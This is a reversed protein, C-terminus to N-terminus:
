CPVNGLATKVLRRDKDYWSAYDSGKLFEDHADTMLRKLDAQLREKVRGASAESALNKMQYPDALNDYLEEQGTLWRWYTHQKTHVGRWEPWNTGTQFYDWHSTYNAILVVERSSAGTGLADASLDTGDTMASCRIGALACLTPMHDIPTYLTDCVRGKPIMGKWRMVLPIKMAEAYPVMKNMRGHSGLMDGHDATFILITDESLGSSDLYDILRGLQDDFNMAMALYIRLQKLNMPDKGKPVNPSRYLNNEPPIKDIYGAPLSKEDWNPHPPHPAVCLLFPKDSGKHKEMYAIAQDINTDTEYKDSYVKKPKDEYWWYGNFDSHLNYAQWFEFGLRDPGPETYEPEPHSKLWEVLAAPNPGFPGDGVRIGGSLHFKGIFGTSCGGRVFLNALCEPNQKASANVYNMVIGSQTPYRGTLAM